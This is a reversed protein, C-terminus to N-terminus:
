NRLAGWNLMTQAIQTFNAIPQRKCPLTQVVGEHSFTLQVVEGANGFNLGRSHAELPPVGDIGLMIDGPLLKGSLDCAPDVFSVRGNPYTWCLGLASLQQDANGNLTRGSRAAEEARLTTVHSWLGNERLLRIMEDAEASTAQHKRITITMGPRYITKQDADPVPTDQNLQQTEGSGPLNRDISVQGNLTEAPTPSNVLAACVFALTLQKIM